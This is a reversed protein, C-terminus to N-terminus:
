TCDPSQADPLNFVLLFETFKGPKSKLEVHGQFYDEMTQKVFPLGFGLNIGTQKSTFDADFIRDVFKESIGRGNDRISVTFKNGNSFTKIEIERRNNKDISSLEEIANLVLNLFIREFMAPVGFLCPPDVLKVLTSIAGTELQNKLIFLTTEIVENPNFYEEPRKGAMLDRTNSIIREIQDVSKRSMTIINERQERDKIRDLLELSASVASIPSALDHIMSKSIRGMTAANYISQAQQKYSEELQRVRLQVEQDLERNLFELEKGYEYARKYSSHIEEYGIRAIFLFTGLFLLATLTFTIDSETLSPSYPIIKNTHLVSIIITGIAFIGLFAGAKKTGSVIAIALLDIFILIFSMANSVGSNLMLLWALLLPILAFIYFPKRYNTRHAWMRAAVIVVVVIASQSIMWLKIEAPRDSSVTFLVIIALGLLSTIAFLNAVLLVVKRRRDELENKIKGLYM